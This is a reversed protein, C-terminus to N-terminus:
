QLGKLIALFMLLAALGVCMGMFATARSRNRGFLGALGLVGALLGVFASTAGAVFLVAGVSPLWGQQQGVGACLGTCCVFISALVGLMLSTNGLVNTQRPLKPDRTM